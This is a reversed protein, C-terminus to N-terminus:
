TNRLYYIVITSSFGTKKLGFQILSMGFLFGLKEEFVSGFGFLVIVVTSNWVDRIWLVLSRAFIAAARSFKM